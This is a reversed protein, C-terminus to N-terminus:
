GEGMKYQLKAVTQKIILVSGAHSLETTPMNDREQLIEHATKQALVIQPLNLILVLSFIIISLHFTKM